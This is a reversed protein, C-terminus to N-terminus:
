GGYIFMHIQSRAYVTIHGNFGGYYWGNGRISINFTGPYLTFYPSDPPIWGTSYTGTTDIEYYAWIALYPDTLTITRNISPDPHDGLIEDVQIDLKIQVYPYIIDFQLLQEDLCTWNCSVGFDHNLVVIPESYVLFVATIPIICAFVAIAVKTIRKM